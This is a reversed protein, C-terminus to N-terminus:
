LGEIRNVFADRDMTITTSFDEILKLKKLFAKMSIPIPFGGFITCDAFVKLSKGVSKM